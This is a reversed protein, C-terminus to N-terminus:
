RMVEKGLGSLSAIARKEHELAEQAADHVNLAKTEIAHATEHVELAKKEITHAGEHVDHAKKELHARLNKVTDDLSRLKGAVQEFKSPDIGGIKETLGDASRMNKISTFGDPTNMEIDRKTNDYMQRIAHVVEYVDLTCGAHSFDRERLEIFERIKKWEDGYYKLRNPLGSGKLYTLFGAIVTNIAGFATVAKNDANAAGLATLAAAVVIQLIYCTNIVASFVKFSDKAKQESSVVRSYLGINDAPRSGSERFGMGPHSTIGLMLRYLTLPDDSLIMSSTTNFRSRSPELDGGLLSSPAFTGVNPVQEEDAQNKQQKGKFLLRLSAKLLTAM